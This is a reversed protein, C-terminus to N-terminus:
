QALPESEHHPCSRTLRNLRAVLSCRGENDRYDQERNGCGIISSSFMIVIQRAQTAQPFLSCRSAARSERRLTSATTPAAVIRASKVVILTQSIRGMSTSAKRM